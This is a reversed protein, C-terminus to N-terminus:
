AKLKRRFWMLGVLGTGLLLMTAPEPITSSPIEEISFEGQFHPFMTATTLGALYNECETGAGLYGYVYLRDGVGMTVFDDINGTQQGSHETFGGLFEYQKSYDLLLYDYGSIDAYLGPNFYALNPVMLPALYPWLTFPDIPYNSKVSEPVVFATYYLATSSKSRGDLALNFYTYDYSYDLGINALEGPDGGLEFTEGWSLLYNASQTRFYNWFDLGTAVTGVASAYAEVGLGKNYFGAFNEWADIGGGFYDGLDFGTAALIYGILGEGWGGPDYLDFTFPPDPGSLSAFEKVNHDKYELSLSLALSPTIIMVILLMTVLIIRSFIPTKMKM